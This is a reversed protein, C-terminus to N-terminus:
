GNITVKDSGDKFICRLKGRLLVTTILEGGNAGIENLTQQMELDNDETIPIDVVTYNFM